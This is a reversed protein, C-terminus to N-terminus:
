LITWTFEEELGQKGFGFQWVAQYFRWTDLEFDKEMDM